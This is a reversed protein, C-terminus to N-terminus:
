KRLGRYKVAAGLIALAMLFLAAHACAIYGDLFFGLTAFFYFGVAVCYFMLTKM